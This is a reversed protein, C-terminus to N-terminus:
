TAIVQGASGRWAAKAEALRLPHLLPLMARIDALDKERVTGEFHKLGSLKFLYHLEASLTRARILRSNRALQRQRLEFGSLGFEVAGGWVSGSTGLQTAIFLEISLADRFRVKYRQQDRHVDTQGQVAFETSGCLRSLVREEDEDLVFLDIDDHDRLVRGLHLDTAWGGGVVSPVGLENLLEFCAFAQLISEPDAIPQFTALAIRYALDAAHAVGLAELDEFLFRARLDSPPKSRRRRDTRSM